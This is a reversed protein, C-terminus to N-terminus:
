SQLGSRAFAAVIDRFIPIAQILRERDAADTRQAATAQVDAHLQELLLGARADGLAVLVQQCGWRLGITQGAPRDALDGRLRELAANVKHLAVAPQGLQLACAATDAVAMSLGIPDDLAGYLAVAQDLWQLARAPQQRAVHVAGLRALAAAEIRRNGTARANALANEYHRIAMAPDGLNEAAMGGHYHAAAVRPVAGISAALELMRGALDAREEWRGLVGAINALNDVASLQVQPSGLSV